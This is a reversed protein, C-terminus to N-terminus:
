KKSAGGGISPVQYLTGTSDDKTMKVYYIYDGEPSFTLGSYWVGAPPVIQVSSGTTVQRVWVSQQQTDWETYVVYKGAPSLAADKVKGTATLRTMKISQFPAAPQVFQARRLFKYLGFSLGALAAIVVCTALPMGMKHRMTEE